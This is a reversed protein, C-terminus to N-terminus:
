CPWATSQTGGKPAGPLSTGVPMLVMARHKTCGGAAEQTQPLEGSRIGQKCSKNVFKFNVDGHM